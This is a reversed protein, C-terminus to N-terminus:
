PCCKTVIAPSLVPPTTPSAPAFVPSDWWPQWVYGVNMETAGSYSPCGPEEIITKTWYKDGVQVHAVRDQSCSTPTQLGTSDIFVLGCDTTEFANIIHNQTPSLNLCVFAARWGAKEANNHLMVAFDQCVFREYTVPNWPVYLHKDTDDQKLFEVLESWSPNRAMPNNVLGMNNAWDPSSDLREGSPAPSSLSMYHAELETDANIRFSLPNSKMTTNGGWYDFTYCATSQAQLTVLSGADYLGSSPTVNGADAPICSTHLSYQRVFYAFVSKFGTMQVNTTASTGQADNGWNQFRYGPAATATLTVITGEEYLSTSPSVNGGEAPSSWTYLEYREPPKPSCQTAGLGLPFSLIITALLYLLIRKRM